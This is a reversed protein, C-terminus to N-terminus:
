SCQFYVVKGTKTELGILFVNTIDFILAVEGGM